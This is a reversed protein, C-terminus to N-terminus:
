RFKLKTILKKHLINDLQSVLIAIKKTDPNKTEMETKLISLTLAYEPDPNNELASCGLEFIQEVTKRKEETM